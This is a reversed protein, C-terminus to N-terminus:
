RKAVEYLIKNMKAVNKKVSFNRLAYSHGSKGMYKRLLDNQSLLSIWYAMEDVSRVIRGGPFYRVIGVDTSIFPIQAAMSEVISLPFMEVRSGFLYITSDKVYNAIKNRPINYLLQVKREGYLADLKKKLEYLKDYYENKKSGILILDMSTKAKYFARLIFEQNKLPLYNAVCIAYNKDNTLSNGDIFFSSNASNNIVYNKVNYYKKFFISSNLMEHLHIVADYKEIYKKCNKYHFWWRISDWLKHSFSSASNIDGLHWKFDFMGHMYLIKKCTIQNLISFTLETTATQTCVNIIYDSQSCLKLLLTRYEKKKGIFFTHKTSVDVRIIHVGNHMEDSPLGAHKETVVTVDHGLKVLGEAEYETVTQVGDTLPYYTSVTFIIKM